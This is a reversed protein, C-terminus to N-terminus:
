THLRDFLILLIFVFCALLLYYLKAQNIHFYYELIFVKMGQANFDSAKERGRLFRALRLTHWM